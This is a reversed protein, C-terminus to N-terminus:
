EKEDYGYLRNSKCLASTESINVVIRMGRALGIFYECGPRQEIYEDEIMDVGVLNIEKYETHIAFAILWAISSTFYRGFRATLEGKPFEVSNPIGTFERQMYVPFNHREALWEFRGKYSCIEELTHLDFWKSAHFEIERSIIYMQNLTWIEVDTNFFRKAEEFSPSMGCICVKKSSSEPM